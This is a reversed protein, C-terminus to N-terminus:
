NRAESEVSRPGHMGWGDVLSCTAEYELYQPSCASIPVISSSNGAHCKNQDNHAKAMQGRVQM